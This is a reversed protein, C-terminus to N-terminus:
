PIIGKKQARSKLPKRYSATDGRVGNAKSSIVIATFAVAVTMRM